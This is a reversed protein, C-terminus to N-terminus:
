CSRLPHRKSYKRRTDEISRFGHLMDELICADSEGLDNHSKDLQFTQVYGQYEINKVNWFLLAGRGLLRGRILWNSSRSNLYAFLSLIQAVSWVSVTWYNIYQRVLQKCLPCRFCLVIWVRAYELEVSTMEASSWTHINIKRIEYRELECWRAALGEIILLNIKRYFLGCAYHIGYEIAGLASRHFKFM